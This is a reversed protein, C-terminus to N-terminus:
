RELAISVGLVHSAVRDVLCILSVTIHRVSLVCLLWSTSWQPMQRRDFKYYDLRKNVRPVDSRSTPRSVTLM